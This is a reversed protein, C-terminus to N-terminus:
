FDETLCYKNRNGEWLEVQYEQIEFNIKQPNWLYTKLDPLNKNNKLVIDMSIAIMINVTSDKDNFHFLNSSNAAYYFPEGGSLNPFEAVLKIDTDPTPVKVRAHVVLLDYKHELHELLNVEGGISYENTDQYAGSSLRQQQTYNITPFALIDAVYSYVLGQFDWGKSFLYSAAGNTYSVEVINPYYYNAIAILEKPFQEVHGLFLQEKGCNIIYAEFEKITNVGEEWALYESPFSINHPFDIELFHPYTAFVFCTNEHKYQAADAKMQFYRNSYFIGFHKRQITLSTTGAFLVLILLSVQTKKTLEPIWGFLAFLLFPFFFILMSHQLVPNRYVSYFYGILFISLFWIGSIWVWKLSKNAKYNYIGVAIIILLGFRLLISHNTTYSFFDLIYHPTPAGLWEGVGGRDLQHLFIPINPLYLLVILAALTLYRISYKRDIVFLGTVGILFAALLSFHHNYGCAAGFVGTLILNQWFNKDPRNILGDWFYVMCLVLFMGSIYPRAIQSYMVTFQLTALLSVILLAVTQNSWKKFISYSLLLSGIGFLLFPLKVAWQEYGFWKVWYYIFVQVGPPHTDAKVGYEILDSFNDFHTRNLASVEDHTLPIEFFNWFRLVSAILIVFILLKNESIYNKIRM